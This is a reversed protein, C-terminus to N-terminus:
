LFEPINIHDLIQGNLGIIKVLPNSHGDLFVNTIQTCGFIKLIRLSLCSDVILGLAEDTMKRCFSLDLCQLHNSCRRSIALATHHGVKEVNNLSLETLSGGSAELFAAIAQDSFANRRINLKQILRCGNALHGLVSDNLRNLNRLDIASLGPCNEGITKISSATLKLCSAFCLERMNSGCDPILERIFRDCVSPVGAMSLAELHKLKKLSPLILMANINQCDDINLVRLVSHLKEALNIIGTSTLLSCQSLNLSSLLPASSVIADLGDDSLRYAGKLSMMTLSPLSCPSRSLTARLIYDPLCRGCLDLQVVKLNTTDCKGFIGEFEDEAIWSCDSVYIETPSGSLIHALLRSNMKRSRCLMLILWHKLMDPVGELSEIEEANDLLVKLSLNKLSPAPRVFHDSITEKSPAWSIRLNTSKETKSSSNSERARLRAEREEIIKVATSFPGPWDQPGAEPELEDSDEEDNQNDEESKFFAFKPALEIAKIREAERRYEILGKVTEPERLRVSGARMQSNGMIGDIAAWDEEIVMKEKGKEEASIKGKGPVGAGGSDNPESNIVGGNFQQVVTEKGSYIESHEDDLMLRGKGKEECSYRRKAHVQTGDKHVEDLNVHDVKTSRDAIRSGSRLTMYRVVSEKNTDEMSNSSRVPLDEINHNSNPVVLKKSDIEENGGKELEPIAVNSDLKTVKSEDAEGRLVEVAKSRGLKQRKVSRDGNQLDEEDEEAVFKVTEKEKISSGKGEEAKKDQQTGRGIEVALESNRSAELVMRDENEAGHGVEAGNMEMRRRVIRGGSRLNMIRGEMAGGESVRPKAGVGNEGMEGGKEEAPFSSLRSRAKRKGRASDMALPRAPTSNPASALRLSRRLPPPAAGGSSDFGLGLAVSSAPSLSPSITSADSRAPTSPDIPPASPPPPPDLPKPALKQSRLLPM